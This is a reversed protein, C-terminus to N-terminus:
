RNIVSVIKQITTQNESHVVISNTQIYISLHTGPNTNRMISQADDSHYNPQINSNWKLNEKAKEEKNDKGLLM